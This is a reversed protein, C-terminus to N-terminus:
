PPHYPSPTIPDYPLRPRHTLPWQEYTRSGVRGAVGDPCQSITWVQRCTLLRWAHAVVMLDRANGRAVLLWNQEQDVTVPENESGVVRDLVFDRGRAALDDVSHEPEGRHQEVNQPALLRVVLDNGHLAPRGEA